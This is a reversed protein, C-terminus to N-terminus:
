KQSKAICFSSLKQIVERPLARKRFDKMDRNLRPFGGKAKLCGLMIGDDECSCKADESMVVTLRALCYEFDFGEKILTEAKRVTQAVYAKSTACRVPIKNALSEDVEHLCCLREYFDETSTHLAVIGLGGKEALLQPSSVVSMYSSNSPQAALEPPSSLLSFWVVTEDHVGKQKVFRDMAEMSEEVDGGWACSVILAAPRPKELGANLLMALSCGTGEVWPTIFLEKIDYMTVYGQQAKRQQYEPLAICHSFVARWQRMTLTWECPPTLQFQQKQGAAATDGTILVVGPPLAPKGSSQPYSADVLPSKAMNM